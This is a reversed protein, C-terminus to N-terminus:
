QLNRARGRSRRHQHQLKHRRSPSLEPDARARRLTGQAAQTTSRRGRSKPWRCSPTRCGTSCTASCADAPGLAQDNFDVLTWPAYDTHTAALMMERAETYDDYHSRAKIDIPSLKWRKMPNNLRNQFREEQVAQDCCLWYKFLLIGDDVLHREFEPVANLFEQTQEPTCFGMVKEVGPATTGAATSCSSKARPRSISSIASSIGNPRSASTRGPCRSSAASARISCARSCTSRAARAPPTAARSSSSWASVRRPYGARWRASSKRWRSSSCNM